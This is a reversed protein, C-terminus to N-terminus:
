SLEKEVGTPHDYEVFIKVVTEAGPLESQKEQYIVVKEVKGYNSCEETVEGELADDIEDAGIMNRLCIVRTQQSRMLKQMVMNRTSGHKGIGIGEQDALTPPPPPAGNEVAKRIKEEEKERKMNKLMEAVRKAGTLASSPNNVIVTNLQHMSPPVVCPGVRILQGGLDFNNM